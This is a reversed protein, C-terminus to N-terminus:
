IICLFTDELKPSVRHRETLQHLPAVDNYYLEVDYGALKLAASLTFVSGGGIRPLIINDGRGVAIDIAREAVESSAEQVYGAGNGGDFGDLWPKVM